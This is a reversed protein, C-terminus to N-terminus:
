SNEGTDQRALYKRSVVGIATELGRQQKLQWKCQENRENKMGGRKKTILSRAGTVKMKIVM